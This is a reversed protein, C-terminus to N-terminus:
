RRYDAIAQEFMVEEDCVLAMNKMIVEATEALREAKENLAKLRDIESILLCIRCHPESTDVTKPIHHGKELQHAKKIEDIRSM